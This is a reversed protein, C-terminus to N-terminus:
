KGNVEQIPTLFPKLQQQPSNSKTNWSSKNLKDKLISILKDKEEDTLEKYDYKLKEILYEMPNKTEERCINILAQVVMEQRKRNGNLFKKIINLRYKQSM